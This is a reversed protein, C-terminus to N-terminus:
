GMRESNEQINFISEGTHVRQISVRMGKIQVEKLFFYMNTEQSRRVHLVRGTGGESLDQNSQEWWGGGWCRHM